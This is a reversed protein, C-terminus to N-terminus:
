AAQHLSRRESGFQKQKPTLCPAFVQVPTNWAGAVGQIEEQKVLWGWVAWKIGDWGDWSSSFQNWVLGIGQSQCESGKIKGVVVTVILPCFGGTKGTGSGRGTGYVGVIKGPIKDLM